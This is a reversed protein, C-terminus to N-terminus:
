GEDWGKIVEGAGLKFDFPEKRDHSSDFKKGNKALWGTYHVIVKTGKKAETGTGVKLDEYKLGSDTTVVKGGDKKKEKEAGEVNGYCVVVAVALLMTRQM